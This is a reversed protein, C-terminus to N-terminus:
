KRLSHIGLVLVAGALTLETATYQLNLVYTSGQVSVDFLTVGTWALIGAIFSMSISEEIHDLMRRKSFAKVSVILTTLAGIVIFFTSFSHLYMGVALVFMVTTLSYWLYEIDPSHDLSVEEVNLSLVRICLYFFIYSLVITYPQLFKPVAELPYFALIAVASSVTGLVSVTRATYNGNVFIYILAELLVLFSIIVGMGLLINGSAAYSIYLSGPVSLLSLIFEKRGFHLGVATVAAAGLFITEVALVETPLPTFLSIFRLVSGTFFVAPIVVLVNRLDESGHILPLFVLGFVLESVALVVQGAPIGMDM